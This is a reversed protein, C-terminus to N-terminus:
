ARGKKGEPGPLSLPLSHTSFPSLVIKMLIAGKGESRSVSFLRRFDSPLSM